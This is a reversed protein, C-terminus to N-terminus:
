HANEQYNKFSQFNKGAFLKNQLKFMLKILSFNLTIYVILIDYLKLNSSIKVADKETTSHQASQNTTKTM